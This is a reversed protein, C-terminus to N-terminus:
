AIRGQSEAKIIIREHVSAEPDEDYVEVGYDGAWARAAAKSYALVDVTVPTGTSVAHAVAFKLAEGWRTFHRTEGRSTEVEFELDRHIIAETM